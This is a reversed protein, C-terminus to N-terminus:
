ATVVRARGRGGAFTPEPGLGRLAPMRELLADRSMGLLAHREMLVDFDVPYLHHRAPDALGAVNRSSIARAIWEVFEARESPSGVTGADGTIRRLREFSERAVPGLVPDGVGLFGKWAV